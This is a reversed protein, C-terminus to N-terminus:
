PRPEGAQVARVRLYAPAKRGRASCATMTHRLYRPTTEGPAVVRLGAAPVKKCGKQPLGAISLDVDSHATAGPRLVIPHAAASEVRVAANGVQAYAAGRADYAAVQPFGTLTCPTASTNTFDVPYRTGAPLTEPAPALSIALRAETCKPTFRAAHSATTIAAPAPAPRNLTVALAATAGFALVATGRWALLVAARM